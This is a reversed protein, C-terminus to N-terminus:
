SIISEIKGIQINIYMDSVSYKRLYKLTIAMFDKYQNYNNIAMVSGHGNWQCEMYRSDIMEGNEDFAESIYDYEFPVIHVLQNRLFYINEFEQYNDVIGSSEDIIIARMTEISKFCHFNSNKIKGRLENANKSHILIYREVMPIAQNMIIHLNMCGSLATICLIIGSQVMAEERDKFEYGRETVCLLEHLSNSYKSDDNISAYMKAMETVVVVSRLTSLIQQIQIANNM